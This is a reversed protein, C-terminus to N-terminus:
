TQLGCNLQALNQQMQQLAELANSSSHYKEQSEYPLFSGGSRLPSPLSQWSNQRQYNTQFPPTVKSPVFNKVIFSPGKTSLTSPTVPPSSELMIPIIRERPLTNSLTTQILSSMGGLFQQHNPIQLPPPTPPKANQQRQLNTNQQNQKNLASSQHPLFRWPAHAFSDTPKSVQPSNAEANEPSHINNQYSMSPAKNQPEISSLKRDSDIQTLSRQRQLREQTKQAHVLFEPPPSSGRKVGCMWPLPAKNLGSSTPSGSSNQTLPTKPTGSADSTKNSPIYMLGKNASKSGSQPSVPEAPLSAQRVLRNQNYSKTERELNAPPSAMRVVPRFPCVYENESANETANLKSPSGVVNSEKVPTTCSKPVSQEPSNNERRSESQIFGNPKGLSTTSLDESANDERIEKVSIETNLKNELKDKKNQSTLELTKINDDDTVNNVLKGATKNCKPTLENEEKIQEHNTQASLENIKEFNEIIPEKVPANVEKNVEEKIEKSKEKKFGAIEEEENKDIEKFPKITRVNAKNETKKFDDKVLNSDIEKPSINLIHLGNPENTKGSNAITVNQNTDQEKAIASNKFSNSLIENGNMLLDKQALKSKNKDNSNPTFKSTISSILEDRPAVSHQIKSDNGKEQVNILNSYIPSQSTSSPTASSILSEAEPKSTFSSTSFSAPDSLRKPSTVSSSSLSSSSPVSPGPETAMLPKLNSQNIASHCNNWDDKPGNEIPASSLLSSTPSSYASPTTPPTVSSLPSTSTPTASPSANVSGSEGIAFPPPPPPPGCVKRKPKPPEKAPQPKVMPGMGVGPVPLVQIMGHPPLTPPVGAPPPTPPQQALPSPRVGEMCANRQLRRQM